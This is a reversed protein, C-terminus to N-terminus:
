RLLSMVGGTILAYTRTPLANSLLYLNSSVALIQAVCLGLLALFVVLLSLRGMGKGALGGIVEHYSHIHHIKNRLPHNVTTEIQQHYEALLSILM